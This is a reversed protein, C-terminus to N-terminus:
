ANQSDFNELQCKVIMSILKMITLHFVRFFHKQIANYRIASLRSKFNVKKEFKLKPFKSSSFKLDFKPM